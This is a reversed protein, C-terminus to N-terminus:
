SNLSRAAPATTVASLTANAILVGGVQLYWTENPLPPANGTGAVFVPSTYNIKNATSCAGGVWPVRCIQVNGLLSLGAGATVTMTGPVVTGINTLTLYAPALLTSFVPPPAPATAPTTGEIIVVQWKGVGVTQATNRALTTSKASAPGAVTLLALAVGVAAAWRRTAAM